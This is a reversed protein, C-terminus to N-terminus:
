LAEMLRAFEDDARDPQTLHAIQEAWADDAGGDDGNFKDLHARLHAEVQAREADSLGETQSLRALANRVGAVSAAGPTGDPSVFHHPLHCAAKTVQGDEVADDDWAGYVRRATSVPMPSPLRRENAGADWTGDEVATDHKPAAADTPRAEARLDTPPTPAADRGLHRFGSLDWTAMAPKRPATEPEEEPEEDDQGDGRRPLVADALGAAVAEDPAYWTEARMIDRWATVEGGARDAYTGAIMDSVKDLVEAYQYMDAANGIVLGSADHIMMQSARSMVVQDGAMAILSASSAALGDVTVTVKGPYALLTNYIAVGDFVDGGPSNVKLHLDSGRLSSLAAAVDAACIGWFGIEDYLYLEAPETATAANAQIGPRDTRDPRPKADRANLVRWVQSMVARDLMRPM